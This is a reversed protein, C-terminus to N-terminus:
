ILTKNVKMFYGIVKVLLHLGLGIGLLLMIETLGLTGWFMYIFITGLIWDIQDWPFWSKGSPIELQRKFFSKIIDGGLAGFGLLGGFYWPLIPMWRIWIFYVLQAALIGTVIGRVTKHDGLLRKNNFKLGGDLPTEWKPWIKASLPPIMNAVGATTILIIIKLWNIM